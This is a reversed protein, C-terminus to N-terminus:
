LSRLDGDRSRKAAAGAMSEGYYPEVILQHFRELCDIRREARQLDDARGAAAFREQALCESQPEMVETQFQELTWADLAQKVREHLQEAAGEMAAIQPHESPDATPFYHVKGRHSVRLCFQGPVPQDFVKDRVPPLLNAGEMLLKVRELNEFRKWDYFSPDRHTWHYPHRRLHDGRTIADYIELGNVAIGRAERYIFLMHRLGTARCARELSRVELGAKEAIKALGERKPGFVFDCQSADIRPRHNPGFRQYPRAADGLARLSHDDEAVTQIREYHDMLHQLGERQFNDVLQDAIVDPKQTWFAAINRKDEPLRDALQLWEFALPSPVRPTRGDAEFIVRKVNKEVDGEFGGPTEFVEHVIYPAQGLEAFEARRNRIVRRVEEVKTSLEHASVAVDAWGGLVHATVHRRCYEVHEALHAKWLDGFRRVYQKRRGQVARKRLGVLTVAWDKKAREAHAIINRLANLDPQRPLAVEVGRTNRVRGGTASKEAADLMGKLYQTAMACSKFQRLLKARVMEALKPVAAKKAELARREITDVYGELEAAMGEEFSRKLGVNFNDFVNGQTARTAVAQELDHQLTKGPTASQLLEHRLQNEFEQWSKVGEAYADVHENRLNTPAADITDGVGLWTRCVRDALECAATGTIKSKPHWIVSLGYTSFFQVFGHNNEMRANIEDRVDAQAENRASHGEGVTDLFHALAMMQNLGPEKLTTNGNWGSLLYVNTYSPKRPGAVTTEDPLRYQWAGPALNQYHFNLESLAGFCNAKAKYLKEDGVDAPSLITATLTRTAQPFLGGLLYGFDSFMGSCSGGVLTGVVRIQVDNSLLGGEQAVEVGNRQYYAQIASITAQRSEPSSCKEYANRLVDRADGWREWLAFRGLMRNGGVGDECPMLHEYDLWNFYGDIRAHRDPREQEETMKSRIVDIDDQSVSLARFNVSRYESLDARGNTEFVVYQLVPLKWTGYEEMLFKQLYSLVRMGTSGLGIFVTPQLRAM